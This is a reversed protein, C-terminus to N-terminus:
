ADADDDPTVNRAGRFKADKPWTGTALRHEIAARDFLTFTSLLSHPAIFEGKRVARMLVNTTIGFAACVDRHTVLQPGLPVTTEGPKPLPKSTKPPAATEPTARPKPAPAPPPPTWRPAWLVAKVAAAPDKMVEAYRIRAAEEDDALRIEVGRIMVCWARTRRNEKFYMKPGAPRAAPESM